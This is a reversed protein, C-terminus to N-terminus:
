RYDGRYQQLVRRAEDRDWLQKPRLIAMRGVLRVDAFREAVHYHARSIYDDVLIEADSQSSLNLLSELVCAVRFRGDVLILNPQQGITRFYSWPEAAYAQWRRIRRATPRTLAPMGWEVTPGINVHMLMTVASGPQGELAANDAGLKARMAGLFHADSDVSVLIRVMKSALVTSGGSGYELYNRTHALRQRFYASGAEDFYPESSIVLRRTRCLLVTRFTRCAERFRSPAVDRGPRPLTEVTMARIEHEKDACNLSKHPQGDM